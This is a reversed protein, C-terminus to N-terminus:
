AVYNFIPLSLFMVVVVALYVVVNDLLERKVEERRLSEQHMIVAELEFNM